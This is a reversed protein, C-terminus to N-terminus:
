STTLFWGAMPVKFTFVFKGGKYYGEDPKLTVQFDMLKDKGNPFELHYPDGATYL